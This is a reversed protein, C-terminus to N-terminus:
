KSANIQEVMGRILNRSEEMHETHIELCLVGEYGTSLLGELIAHIDISGQGPPLHLDSKASTGGHNDHLHVHRIREPFRNIFGMSTNTETLLEAHGVDLTMYLDPIRQFAPAFHHAHESLNELCFTVGLKAAYKAWLSLVDIKREVIDESLSRADLCLHQTYTRIGMESALDLLRCVRPAMHETIEDADFRDKENPGHALYAVSRRGQIDVLGEWVRRIEQPDKWDIEAFEFGMRVVLEVEEPSHARAGFLLKM